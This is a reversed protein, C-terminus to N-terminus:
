DKGVFCEVDEYGPITVQDFDKANGALPVDSIKLVEFDDIVIESEHEVAPADASATEGKTYPRHTVKGRYRVENLRYAFVFDSAKGFEEEDLKNDSINAEAGAAVPQNPGSTEAEAGVKTSRLDKRKMRAGVAVRIGTIMYVRRKFIFSKLTAPVDGHRMADCVYALSPVMIESQLEDFHWMNEHTRTVTIEAKAHTSICDLKAWIGFHTSLEDHMRRNLNGRSTREVLLDNPLPLPRSALQLTRGPQFNCSKTSIWRNYVREAM